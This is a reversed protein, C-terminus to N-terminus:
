GFMWHYFTVKLWVDLMYGGVGVAAIIALMLLAGILKLYMPQERM